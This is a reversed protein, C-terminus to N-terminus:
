MNKGCCKKYKKGSGCYCVENRGVKEKTKKQEAKIRRLEKQYSLIDLGIDDMIGKAEAPSISFPNNIKKLSKEVKEKQEESINKMMLDLIELIEKSNSM